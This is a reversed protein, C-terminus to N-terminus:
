YYLYILTAEITSNQLCLSSKQDFDTIYLLIIQGVKCIPGQFILTQSEFDIKFKLIM